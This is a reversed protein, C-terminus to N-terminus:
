SSRRRQQEESLFFPAKHSRFIMAASNVSLLQGRVTARKLVFGLHAECVACEIALGGSAQPELTVADETIAKSFTAYGTSSRQKDPSAFLPQSCCVCIYHGAEFTDWYDGTFPQETGRLRTVFFQLDSLSQKWEAETKPLSDREGSTMQNEFFTPNFKLHPIPPARLM